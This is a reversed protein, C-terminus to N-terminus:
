SSRSSPTAVSAAGMMALFGLPTTSHTPTTLIAAGVGRISRSRKMAHAGSTTDVTHGVRALAYPSTVARLVCKATVSELADNLLIEDGAVQILIWPSSLLTRGCCPIEQDRLDKGGYVNAIWRIADLKVM